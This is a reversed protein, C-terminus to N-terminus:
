VYPSLATSHDLSYAAGDRPNINDVHHYSSSEITREDLWQTLHNIKEEAEDHDYYNVIATYLYDLGNVYRTEWGFSDLHFSVYHPLKDLDYNTIFSIAHTSSSNTEFVANRVTIM